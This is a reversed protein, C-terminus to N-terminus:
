ILFLSFVIPVRAEIIATKINTARISTRIEFRLPVLLMKMWGTAVAILPKSQLM